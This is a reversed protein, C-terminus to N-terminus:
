HKIRIIRGFHFHKLAEACIKMIRRLPVDESTFGKQLPVIELRRKATM